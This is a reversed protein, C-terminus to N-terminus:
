HRSATSDDPGTQPREAEDNGQRAAYESKDMSPAAMDGVFEEQSKRISDKERTGTSPERPSTEKEPPLNNM